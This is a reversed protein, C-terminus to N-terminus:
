KRTWDLADGSKTILTLTKKSIRFTLVDDSDEQLSLHKDGEIRYSSTIILRNGEIEYAGEEVVIDEEFVIFQGNNKFEITKSVNYAATEWKGIISNRNGCATFVLCILLVFALVSPKIKM